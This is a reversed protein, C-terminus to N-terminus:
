VDGTRGDSLPPSLATFRLAEEVAQKVAEWQDADIYVMDSGQSIRLSGDSAAEIAFRFGSNDDYPLVGLTVSRAHEPSM